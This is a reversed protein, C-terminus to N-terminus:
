SWAESWGPEAPEWHAKLDWWGLKRFHRNAEGSKSGTGRVVKSKLIPLSESNDVGTKLARSKLTMTGGAQASKPTAWIWRHQTPIRVPTLALDDLLVNLLSAFVARKNGHWHSQHTPIASFQLPITTYSHPLWTKQPSRHLGSTPDTYFHSQCAPTTFCPTWHTDAHQILTGNYQNFSPTHLADYNTNPSPQMHEHLM